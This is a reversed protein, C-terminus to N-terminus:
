ASKLVTFELILYKDITAKKVPTTKPYKKVIITIKCFYAPYESDIIPKIAEQKENPNIDAPKKTELVKSLNPNNLVNINETHM